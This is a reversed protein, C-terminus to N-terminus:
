KPLLCSVFTYCTPTSLPTLTSSGKIKQHFNRLSINLFISFRISLSIFVLFNMNTVLPFLPSLLFATRVMLLCQMGSRNAGLSFSFSLTESFSKQFNNCFNYMILIHSTTFQASSVFKPRINTYNQQRRGHPPAPLFGSLLRGSRATERRRGHPPAPLFRPLAIFSHLRSHRRGHPSAPLFTNVNWPYNNCNLRRGYAARTSIPETRKTRGTGYAMM